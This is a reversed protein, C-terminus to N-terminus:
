EVEPVAALDPPSKRFLGAVPRFIRRRIANFIIKWHIAAHLGLILVLLDAAQSHLRRLSMDRAIQIGLAPLATESIMLGTFVVIVFDVFFLANLIYNLRAQMSLRRFFRTTVQVIWKWHLLLHTVIAAILAIGLWEHVAHGTSRPDLSLLFAVFIVIDFLLNVNTLSIKKKEPEM